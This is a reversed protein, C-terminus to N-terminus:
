PSPTRSLCVTIVEQDADARKKKLPEKLAYSVVLVFALYAACIFLLDRVRLGFIMALVGFAVAVGGHTLLITFGGLLGLGVLLAIGVCGFFISAVKGVIQSSAQQCVVEAHCNPCLRSQGAQEPLYLVKNRCKPCIACYM